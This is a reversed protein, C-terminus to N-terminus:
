KSAPGANRGRGGLAGNGGPGREGCSVSREQGRGLKCKRPFFVSFFDCGGSWEGCVQGRVEMQASM